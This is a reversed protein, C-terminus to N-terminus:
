PLIFNPFVFSLYLQIQCTIHIAVLFTEVIADGASSLLSFFCQEIPYSAKYYLVCLHSLYM